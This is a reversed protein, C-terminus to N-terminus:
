DMKAGGRKALVTHKDLENRFFQGTQEPTSGLITVGSRGAPLRTLTIRASPALRATSGAAQRGAAHRNAPM